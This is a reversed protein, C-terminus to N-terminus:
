RVELKGEMGLSRHTGINCYFSFNGAKSATFEIIDSEGPSVAKTAVGLEDIVLDHPKTGTNKFTLKVLDGEKFSLSFPSFKFENGEVIVEKAVSGVTGEVAPALTVTPQSVIGTTSLNSGSRNGLVMSGGVVVVLVVAGAVILVNKKGM